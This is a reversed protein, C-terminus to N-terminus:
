VWRNIIISLLMHSSYGEHGTVYALLIPLGNECLTGQAYYGYGNRVSSWDDLKKKTVLCIIDSHKRDSFYDALTSIAGQPWPYSGGIHKLRSNLDSQEALYTISYSLNLTFQFIHQFDFMAKQTVYSLWAEVQVKDDTILNDDVIYNMTVTVVNSLDDDQDRSSLHIKPVCEVGTCMLWLWLCLGWCLPSM